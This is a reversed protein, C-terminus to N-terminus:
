RSHRWKFRQACAHDGTESLEWPSMLGEFFVIQMAERVNSGRGEPYVVWFQQIQDQAQEPPNQFRWFRAKFHSKTESPLSVKGYILFPYCPPSSVSYLSNQVYIVVVTNHKPLVAAQAGGTTKQRKKPCNLCSSGQNWVFNVKQSALDWYESLCFIKQM